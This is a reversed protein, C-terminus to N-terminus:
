RALGYGWVILVFGVISVLSYLGTWAKEGIRAAVSNRWPENVISVSHAAFFLLLGAILTLM